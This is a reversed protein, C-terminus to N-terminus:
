LCVSNKDLLSHLIAFNGRRFLMNALKRGQRRCDAAYLDWYTGNIYERPAFGLAHAVRDISRPAGELELFVGVPTEDLDVHLGPLRFTTRYKEYRFTPHLGITRLTAPWRQPSEVAVERELKEKYRSRASEPVPTKSTLMARRAGGGVFESPAPTEIRLRLLRRRSRFDAAATDYLTNQELVRGHDAAGLRRLARVLAAVDAIRLKIEIERATRSQHAM